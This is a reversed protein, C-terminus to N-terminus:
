GPQGNKRATAGMDEVRKMLSNVSDKLLQLQDIMANFSDKLEAMEGAAAVEVKQSLDGEAVAAAVRTVDRVQAALILSMHNLNDTLDKWTGGAETDPIQTGLEGHAGTAAALRSAHVAFTQLQDGLGSLTRAVEGTIGGMDEPMRAEFDGNRMANLTSLLQETHARNLGEDSHQESNQQHNNQSDM